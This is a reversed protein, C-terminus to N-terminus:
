KGHDSGLTGGAGKITFVLIFSVTVHYSLSADNVNLVLRGEYCIATLYHLIDHFLSCFVWLTTFLYIM